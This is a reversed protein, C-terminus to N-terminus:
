SRLVILKIIHFDSMSTTREMFPILLNLFMNQEAIKFIGTDKIFKEM